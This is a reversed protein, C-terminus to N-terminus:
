LGKAKVTKATDKKATAKRKTKEMVM